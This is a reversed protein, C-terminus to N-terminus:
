DLNRLADLREVEWSGIEAPRVRSGARALWTCGMKVAEAFVGDPLRCRPLSVRMVYEGGQWSVLPDSRPTADHVVTPLLFAAQPLM